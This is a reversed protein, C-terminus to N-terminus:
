HIKLLILFFYTKYILFSYFFLYNYYVKLSNIKKIMVLVNEVVVDKRKQNIEMRNMKIVEMRNMKRM